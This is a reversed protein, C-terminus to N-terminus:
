LSVEKGNEDFVESGKGRVISVPFRAYTGAIYKQDNKQLESMSKVQLWQEQVKM